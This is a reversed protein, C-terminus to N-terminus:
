DLLPTIQEFIPMFHKPTAHVEGRLYKRGLQIAEHYHNLEYWEILAPVILDGFVMGKVGAHLACVASESMRRRISVSDVAKPARQANILDRLRFRKSCDQLHPGYGQCRM